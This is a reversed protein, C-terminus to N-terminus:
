LNQWISKTVQHRDKQNNLLQPSLTQPSIQDRRFRCDVKAYCIAALLHEVNEDLLAM